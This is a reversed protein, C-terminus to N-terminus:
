EWEKEEMNGTKQKQTPRAPNHVFARTTPNGRNITPSANAAPANSGGCSTTECSLDAVASTRTDSIVRTTIQNASRLSRLAARSSIVAASSRQNREAPKKSGCVGCSRTVTWIARLRSLKECNTEKRM